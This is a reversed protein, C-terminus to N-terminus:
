PTELNAPAPSLLRKPLVTQRTQILDAVMRAYEREVADVKSASREYLVMPQPSAHALSAPIHQATSM